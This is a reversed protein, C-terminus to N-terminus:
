RFVNKKRILTEFPAVPQHWTIWVPSFHFGMKQGERVNKLSPNLMIQADFGSNSLEEGESRMLDLEQDQYIAVKLNVFGTMDLMRQDNM